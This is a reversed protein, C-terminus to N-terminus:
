QASEVGDYPNEEDVTAPKRPVSYRRTSAHRPLSEVDVTPIASVIADGSCMPAPPSKPASATVPSATFTPIPLSGRAEGVAMEKDHLAGAMLVYAALAGAVVGVLLWRVSAGDDTRPPQPTLAVLAQRVMSLVEAEVRARFEADTQHVIANAERSSMAPIPERLPEVDNEVPYPITPRLAVPPLSKRPPPTPAPVPRLTAMRPRPAPVPARVLKELMRIRDSVNCTEHARAANQPRPTEMKSVSADHTTM